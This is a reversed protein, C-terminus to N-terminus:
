QRRPSVTVVSNSYVVSDLGMSRFVTTFASGCPLDRFLFTGRGQVSPDVVLNKIGCQKQMVRLIDRIEEDKVDITVAPQKVAKKPAAASLPKRTAAGLPLAALCLLLAVCKM